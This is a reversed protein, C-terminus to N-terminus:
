ENDSISAGAGRERSEATAPVLASAAHEGLRHWLLDDVLLGTALARRRHAEYDIQPLTMALADGHVAIRVDVATAHALDGPKVMLGAGNRKDICAAARGGWGLEFSWGARRRRDALPLLFLPDSLNRVVLTGGSGQLVALDVLAGCLLVASQGGADLSGDGGELPRLAIPQRALQAVLAPLAPLGRSELWATAFAADEDLGPPAGRGALARKALSELEALTVIM